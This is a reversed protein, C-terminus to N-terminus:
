NLIKFVTILKVWDNKVLNNGPLLVQSTFFRKVTLYFNRTTFSNEPFQMSGSGINVRVFLVAFM